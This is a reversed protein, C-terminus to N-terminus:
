KGDRWIFSRIDSRAGRGQIVAEYTRFLKGARVKTIVRFTGSRVDAYQAIIDRLPPSLIGQVQQVSRLPEDDSDGDVRNPGSRMERIREASQEDMFPIVLMTRVDATNLNLRGLSNATFLQKLGVPYGLVEDAGGLEARRRMNPPADPGWFVGPDETIGRVLLLEFIDSLPGNKARYPSNLGSYYSTEAGGVEVQDGNDRWDIIAAVIAPGVAADVKVLSMAHDLLMRDAHNISMRREEDEITVIITADSVPLFSLPKGLLEAVLDNTEHTGGAWAQGLADYAGGAQSRQALAFRAIEVGSRGLWEFESEWSANRALKTEVKMSYAFGGALVALVTVVMLVMILAIGRRKSGLSPLHDLKM